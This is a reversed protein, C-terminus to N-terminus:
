GADPRQRRRARVLPPRGVHCSRVPSPRRWIEEKHLRARSHPFRRFMWRTAPSPRGVFTASRTGTSVVRAAVDEPLLTVTLRTDNEWHVDRPKGNIAATCDKDFSRGVLLLAVATGAILRAPDARAIAPPTPNLPDARTVPKSTRFLSDFLESLKDTAQKSFMGAMGAIAALGYPNLVTAARGGASEALPAILGGRLVMYILVAPAMGIPTRLILYWVWSQKLSRNGVYDAFSTLCHVLSGLAGAAAVTVFLRLDASGTWELRFVRGGQFLEPGHPDVVPWTAVLVYFTLATLLIFYLGLINTSGPGLNSGSSEPM